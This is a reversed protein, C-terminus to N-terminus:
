GHDEENRHVHEAVGEPELPLHVPRRQEHSRRCAVAVEVVHQAHEVTVEPEKGERCCAVWAQVEALLADNQNRYFSRPGAEGFLVGEYGSQQTRLSRGLDATALLETDRIQSACRAFAAPWYRSALGVIGLRVTEGEM